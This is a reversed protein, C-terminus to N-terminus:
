GCFRLLFCEYLVVVVVVTRPMLLIAALRGAANRRYSVSLRDSLSAFFAMFILSM